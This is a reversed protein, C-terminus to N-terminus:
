NHKIWQQKTHDFESYVGTKPTAPNMVSKKKVVKKKVVKKKPKPNAKISVRSKIAPSKERTGVYTVAAGGGAALAVDRGTTKPSFPAGRILKKRGTKQPMKATKKLDALDAKTLRKSQKKTLRKTNGAETKTLPEKGAAGGRKRPKVIRGPGWSGGAGGELIKETKTKAKTM